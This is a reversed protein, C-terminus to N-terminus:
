RAVPFTAHVRTGEGKISVMVFSGGSQEARKKMNTLGHGTHAEPTQFGKGNDSVKLTVGNRDLTFEIDAESCGSHRVVNTIAEKACLLINRASEPVFPLAFIKDDVSFKLVINKAECAELAFSRLRQVLRELPENSLELSWVVDSMSEVLDRATDGIKKVSEGTQSRTPGLSEKHPLDREIVSSLIAIRTLGAGIEDHLDAAIRSKIREIELLREVRSRVLFLFVAIVLLVCLTIFWWERWLAPTITFSFM